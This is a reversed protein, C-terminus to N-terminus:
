LQPQFDGLRGSFAGTNLLSNQSFNLIFTFFETTRAISFTVRIQLGMDSWVFIHVRNFDASQESVNAHSYSQNGQLLYCFIENDRIFIGRVLKIQFSPALPRHRFVLM